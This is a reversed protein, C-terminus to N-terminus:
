KKESKASAEHGASLEGDSVGPILGDGKVFQETGERQEVFMRGAKGCTQGEGESQKGDKECVFEAVEEGAAMM